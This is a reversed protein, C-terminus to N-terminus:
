FKEFYRTRLVAARAIMRESVPVELLKQELTDVLKKKRSADCRKLETNIENYSNLSAAVENLIVDMSTLIVDMSAHLKELRVEGNLDEEEEWVRQWFLSSFRDNLIDLLKMIDDIKTYLDQKSEAKPITKYATNSDM